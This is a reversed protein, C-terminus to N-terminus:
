ISRVINRLNSPTITKEGKDYKRLSEIEEKRIKYARDIVEESVQRNLTKDKTNNRKKFLKLMNM